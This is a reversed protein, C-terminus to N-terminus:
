YGTSSLDKVERVFRINTVQSSKEAYYRTYYKVVQDMDDAVVFNTKPNGRVYITVDFLQKTM